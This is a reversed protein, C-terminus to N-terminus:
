GEVAAVRTNNNSNYKKGLYCQSPETRIVCPSRGWEGASSDQNPWCWTKIRYQACTSLSFLLYFYLWVPPWVIQWCCHGSEDGPSMVSWQTESVARSFICKTRNNKFKGSLLLSVSAFVILRQRQFFSPSTSSRWRGRWCAQRQKRGWSVSGCPFTLLQWCKNKAKWLGLFVWFFILAFLSLSPSLFLCVWLTFTAEIKKKKGYCRLCFLLPLSEKRHNVWRFQWAPALLYLLRTLLAGCVPEPDDRDCKWSNSQIVVVVLVRLGM